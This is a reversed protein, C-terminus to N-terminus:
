QNGVNTTSVSGSGNQLLKFDTAGDIEISGSGDRVTVVGTTNIVKISGSGDTIDVEGNTNRVSISGSGDVIRLSGGIDETTLSGSGDNITVDGGVGSVRISGSGDVIDLSSSLNGVELSGSGDVISVQLSRPVRIVLDIRDNTRGHGDITSIVRAGGSGDDELTLTYENNAQAQYLEARVEVVSLGEDGHLSLSGAGAEVSLKAGPSIPMELELTDQLTAPAMSCATCVLLIAPVSSLRNMFHVDPM